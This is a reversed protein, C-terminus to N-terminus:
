QKKQGSFLKTQFPNNTDDNSGKAQTGTVVVAGDPL